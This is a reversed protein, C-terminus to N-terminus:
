NGQQLEPLERGYDDLRYAETFAKAEEEEWEDINMFGSFDSDGFEDVDMTQKKVMKRLLHPYTTATHEQWHMPALDPHPVAQFSEAEIKLPGSADPKTVKLFAGANNGTDLYNPASFVTLVKPHDWRSGAAKVEHSRIICQLNNDECFKNSIDPGYMYVGKGRRYSPGYGDGGRPDGWLLDIVRRRDNADKDTTVPGLSGVYDDPSIEVEREVMEIDKITPLTTPTM